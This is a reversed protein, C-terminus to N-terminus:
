PQGEGPRGYARELEVNLAQAVALAERPDAAYVKVTWTRVGKTSVGIEVSSQPAPNVLAVASAQEPQIM